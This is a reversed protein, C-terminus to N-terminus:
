KKVIRLDKLITFKTNISTKQCNCDGDNLDTGCRPCLGKCAENCLPRMPFAMVVQEQIAERIDIENGNFLSLGALSDPLEAGEESDAGEIEPLEQTYTLAFRTALPTKYEKLCRSCSLRVITEVQGELEIMNHIPFVQLRTKLPALFKCEGVRTMEDLVPFAESKEEFKLSLGEDPIDDIRIRLIVERTSM